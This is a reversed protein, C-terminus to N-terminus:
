HRIKLWGGCLLCYRPTPWVLYSTGAEEWGVRMHGHIRKRQIKLTMLTKPRGVRGGKKAYLPFLLELIVPALLFSFCM